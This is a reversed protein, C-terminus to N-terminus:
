LEKLLQEADTRTAQQLNPKALLTQLEVKAADKNGAKVWARALRLRKAGDDPALEVARRLVEVGRKPDSGQALIWGYTDAVAASNPALAYARAATQLARPDGTEGMLWALNNLVDPNDPALGAALDFQKLAGPYDKTVLLQEGFRVRMALDDPHSELWRTATAQADKLQGASVQAQHLRLVSYTTPKKQLVVKYPAVADGWKKQSALLDGEMLWGEPRAADRKLEKAETLGQAVRGALAYGGALASWLELSDRQLATASRLSAIAGDYDKANMQIEAIRLLPLPSTPQLRAVQRFREIAQNTQGAAAHMLGAAELLQPNDPVAALAAQAAQVAATWDKRGGHYRILALRARVSTPDAAIARNIVAVVEAPAANMRVLVEALTLVYQENKPDKELLRELRKKADDLKGSRADMTALNYSAAAFDPDLKLAREFSARASADDRKALYVIGKVNPGVPSRPQKEELASAAAIAKDFERQKILATVLALDAGQNDPTTTALRELEKLARDSDGSVLRFEAARIRGSVNNGSLANARDLYDAARAPNNLAFYAEGMGRLVQPDDPNRRAVPELVEIAQAPRGRRIYLASLARRAADNQPAKNVVSRLLDEAIGLNGLQYEILGAIFQAPEYDPAGQRAKQIADRAEAYKGRAYLSIADLYYVRTDNPAMKRVVDIQASAKDFENARLYDLILAVRPAALAPRLEVVRTLTKRADEHRDLDTELQAKLVLGDVDDPAGALAAELRRLGEKVDGQRAVLQADVVRGRLNDPQAALAKDVLARAQTADGLGLQAAGMAADLEARARPAKAPCQPAEGLVRKYEGQRLLAAALLACAEDAPYGFDLAKRAETAAGTGDGAQLLATALTYRVEANEPQLKLANKLEIVAPNYEGKALYARASRLYSDADGKGCAAALSAVVLLSAIRISARETM